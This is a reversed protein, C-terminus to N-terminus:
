LADPVAGTTYIAQWLRRDAASGEGAHERRHQEVRDQLWAHRRQELRLQDRIRDREQCVTLFHRRDVTEAPM